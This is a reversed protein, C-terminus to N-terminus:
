SFNRFSGTAACVAAISVAAIPNEGCEPQAAM